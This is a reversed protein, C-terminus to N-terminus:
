RWEGPTVGYEQRFVRLPSQNQKQSGAAAFLIQYLCTNKSFQLRNEFFVQRYLIINPPTLRWWV